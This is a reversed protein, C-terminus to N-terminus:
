FPLARLYSSGALYGIDLLIYLALLSIISIILGAQYHVIRSRFFIRSIRYHVPRTIYDIIRWFPTYINSNACYGIFRIILIFIYFALLASVVSWFFLALIALFVGISFKEAWALTWFITSTTSLLALAFFPSIDITNFRFIRFRKFFELYPDTLKCFYRYPLTLIQGNVWSLM